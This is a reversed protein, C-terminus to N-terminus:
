KTQGTRELLIPRLIDKVWKFEPHSALNNWENPDNVEDYLEEGGNKSLTYRWGEARVTHNRRSPDALDRDSILGFNSSIALSRRRLAPAQYNRLVPALSLGDLAPAGSALPVDPLGGLEVLTPYLDVLSVPLNTTAGRSGAYQNRPDVIIFPVRTSENWLTQKGWFGKEGLHFGHDSTFVIITNDRLSPNADLADIIKGIQVDIEYVAALYALVMTKHLRDESAAIQSGAHVIDPITAVSRGGALIDNYTKRGDGFNADSPIDARDGALIPPLLVDDVSKIGNVAIVRDIFEDPMYMAGHTKTLGLMMFFSRGGIPVTASYASNSQPVGRILDAAWNAIEEDTLRSRNGKGDDEFLGSSDAFGTYSYGAPYTSNMGSRFEVGVSTRGIGHAWFQIQQPM